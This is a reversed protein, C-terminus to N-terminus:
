FIIYILFSPHLFIWETEVSFKKICLNCMEAWTKIFVSYYQASTDGNKLFLCASDDVILSM